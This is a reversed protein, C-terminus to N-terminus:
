AGRGGDAVTTDESAGSAGVGTGAATSVSVAGTPSTAAGASTIGGGLGVGAPSDLLGTVLLRARNDLLRCRGRCFRNGRKLRGRYRDRMLLWM